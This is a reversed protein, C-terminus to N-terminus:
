SIVDTATPTDLLLDPLSNLLVEFGREIEAESLVFGYLDSILVSTMERHSAKREMALTVAIVLVQHYNEGLNLEELSLAVEETDGHEFYEIIIPKVHREIEDEELPPTIAEFKCREKLNIVIM